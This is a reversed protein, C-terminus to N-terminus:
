PAYERIRNAYWLAVQSIAICFEPIRGAADNAMITHSLNEADDASLGSDLVREDIAAKRLENLQPHNLQLIEVTNEAAGDNLLPKVSGDAAYQFRHEVDEQLPSVFNHEDIHAGGKKPAGYPFDDILPRHGPTNSPICALMNSYNIDLYPPQNQQSQPVVHEIHCDDPTLIRQMTYACLYGQEVLMQIKVGAKPMNAYTLNQPTNTNEEKWRRLEEPEQGKIIRRM